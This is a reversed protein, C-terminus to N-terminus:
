AEPQCLRADDDGVEPTQGTDLKPMMDQGVKRGCGFLRVWSHPWRIKRGLGTVTDALVSRGLSPSTHPPPYLPPVTPTVATRPRNNFRLRTESADPKSDVATAALTLPKPPHPFPAQHPQQHQPQQTSITISETSTSLIWCAGVHFPQFRHVGATNGRSVRKPSLPPLGVGELNGEGVQLRDMGQAVALFLVRLRTCEGGFCPCNGGVQAWGGDSDGDDTPRKLAEHAHM